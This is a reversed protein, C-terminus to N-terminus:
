CIILFFYFSYCKIEHLNKNKTQNNVCNLVNNTYPIKKKEMVKSKNTRKENAENEYPTEFPMPCPM